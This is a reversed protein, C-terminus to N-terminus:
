VTLVIFFVVDSMCMRGMDQTWILEFKYQIYGISTLPFLVFCLLYVKEASSLYQTM